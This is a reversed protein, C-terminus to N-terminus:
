YGCDFIEKTIDVGNENKFVRVFANSTFMIELHHTISHLFTEFDKMSEQLTDAGSYAFAPLLESDEELEDEFYPSDIDQWKNPSFWIEGLTFSCPDGDNFVPVWQTWYITNAEPHNEFFTNAAKEFLHKLTNKHNELELNLEEVIDSIKTM